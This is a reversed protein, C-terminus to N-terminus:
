SKAKLANEYTRVLNRVWANIGACVCIILSSKMDDIGLFYDDATRKLLSYGMAGSIILFYPELGPGIEVGNLEMYTLVFAFFMSFLSATTSVANFVNPGNLIVVVVYVMMLITKLHQRPQKAPGTTTFKPIQGVMYVAWSVIGLSLLFQIRCNSLYGDDELWKDDEPCLLAEVFLSKIQEVPSSMRKRLAALAQRAM